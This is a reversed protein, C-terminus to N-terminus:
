KTTDHLKKIINKFLSDKVEFFGYKQKPDDVLIEIEGDDDVIVTGTTTIVEERERLYMREDRVKKIEKLEFVLERKVM